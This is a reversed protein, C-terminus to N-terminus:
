PTKGNRERRKLRAVLAAADPVLGSSSKTANAGLCQAVIERSVLPRGNPRVRYPVGLRALYRCIAAPQRLPACMEYLEDDHLFPTMHMDLRHRPSIKGSVTATEAGFLPSFLM